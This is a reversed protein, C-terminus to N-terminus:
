SECESGSERVCGPGASSWGPAAPPHSQNWDPTQLVCHTQRQAESGRGSAVSSGEM